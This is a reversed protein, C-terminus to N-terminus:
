LLGRQQLYAIFSCNSMQMSSINFIIINKSSLELIGTQNSIYTFGALSDTGGPTTVSISGTSGSDVVAQITGASLITFSKAPYGGFMVASTNTFNSGIITVKEGVKASTPSFSTVHPEPIYIYGALSDKGGLTTVSVYGSNGNFVTASITTNNIVNFSKASIGGFTVKQVDRFNLGKITIINESASHLPDFSQVIPAPFVFGTLISTGAPNIVKIDGSSGKGVYAILTSDNLVQFSQATDTGFYVSTVGFLNKGNITVADGKVHGSQTHPTHQAKSKHPM